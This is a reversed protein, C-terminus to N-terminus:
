FGLRCRDSACDREMFSVSSPLPPSIRPRGGRESAPYTRAAALGLLLLEDSPATLTFVPRVGKSGQLHSPEQRFASSGAGMEQVLLRNM